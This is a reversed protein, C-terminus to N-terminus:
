ESMQDAPTFSPTAMRKMTRKIEELIEMTSMSEATDETSSNNLM